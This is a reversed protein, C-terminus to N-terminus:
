ASMDRLFYKVQSLMGVHNEKFAMGIICEANNDVPTVLLNGDFAMENNEATGFYVGSDLDDSETEIAFNENSYITSIKPVTCKVIEGTSEDENFTCEEDCITIKANEPDYAIMGALADVTVEYECGGAFSCQLGSTSATVELENVLEPNVDYEDNDYSEYYDDGDHVFEIRPSESGLPVGLLYTVTMQTDSDITISDAPVGAFTFIAEHDDSFEYGSGTVVITNADTITSSTIQPFGASTKTVACATSDSDTDTCHYVDDGYVLYMEENGFGRRTKWWCTVKGYSIVNTGDCENTGM